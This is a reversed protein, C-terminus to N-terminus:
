SGCNYQSRLKNREYTSDASSQRSQGVNVHASIAQCMADHDLANDEVHYEHPVSVTGHIQTGGFTTGTVPASDYRTYSSPCPATQMWTKNGAHCLHGDTQAQQQPPADQVQYQQPAAGYYASQPASNGYNAQRQQVPASEVPNAYQEHMLTKSAQACPSNQYIPVGNTGKCKYINGALAINSILLAVVIATVRKM